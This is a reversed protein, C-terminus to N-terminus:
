APQRGRWISIAILALIALDIVILLWTLWAAAGFPGATMYTGLVGILTVLFALYRIWRIRYLLAAGLALYAVGFPILGVTDGNWGSIIWALCHLLGNVILLQGALRLGNAFADM